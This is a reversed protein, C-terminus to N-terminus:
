PLIYEVARKAKSAAQFIFKKDDKLKSLWGQIYATSNTFTAPNDIGVVRCLFAAGIEATLEEQSYILSGFKVTGMVEERMLRSVHGTSHVLEHFFTAYYAEPSEFQNLVPMQVTDIPPAYYPESGGFRITPPNPISAIIRECQDLQDHTHPTEPLQFDIGEIDSINFVRYYRAFFLKTLDDQGFRDEDVVINGEQDKYSIKWYVIPLSKAERRVKGGLANAQKLTIFYPVEYPSLNTLIANIGTYIHKTVYNRAYGVGQWTKRWPIRGQELAKVIQDTIFQYVDVTQGTKQGAQRQQRM